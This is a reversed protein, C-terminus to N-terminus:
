LVKQLMSLVELVDTGQHIFGDLGAQQYATIRDEPYGALFVTIAPETSKVIQTLSPVIEPYADDTGCIVVIRAGSDLAAQAAAGPYKFGDNGIVEFGGVQFFDTSFDTRAKHKSVPGINALFVKAREGNQEAYIEALARLAEFPEALRRALLCNATRFIPPPFGWPTSRAVNPM